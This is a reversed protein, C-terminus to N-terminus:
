PDWVYYSFIIVTGYDPVSQMASPIEARAFSSPTMVGLRYLNPQNARVLAVTVCNFQDRYDCWAAHHGARQPIATWEGTRYNLRAISWAGDSDEGSVFPSAREAYVAAVVDIPQDSWYYLSKQATDAGYHARERFLHDAGDIVPISRELRWELISPAGFLLGLLVVPAICVMVMCIVM